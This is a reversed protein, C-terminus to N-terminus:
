ADRNGSVTDPNITSSTMLFDKEQRDTFTPLTTNHRPSGWNLCPYRRHGQPPEGSTAVNRPPIQQTLRRCSILAVMITHQYGNGLRQFNTIANMM